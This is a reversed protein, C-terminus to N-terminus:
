KVPTFGWRALVAQGETSLVYEIFKAALDANKSKALPAIPYKAIVNLDTPIEIFKLEPATVVDSLYVIGADAEGLLVKALVQKVNDENSVVNAFVKDKFGAGFFVDMLDFAQRAYEGVPVEEAALVLKVGPNALDELDELAAPNDVPLIVILENTLFIQAEGAGVISEAVLADMEKESASAFVDSPAGEVIQTRLSQSGAFNFTTVVGPNAADFAAGIETFADTLSAAAFVTLTRKSAEIDSVPAPNFLADCATLFFVPIFIFSVLRKM